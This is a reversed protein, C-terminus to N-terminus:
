SALPDTVVATSSLTVTPAPAAGAPPNLRREVAETLGTLARNMKGIEAALKPVDTNASSSSSVPASSASLSPSSSSAPALSASLSSSSSSAPAPHSGSSSSSALAPRSSSSSAPTPRSDLTNIFPVYSFGDDDDDAGSASGLPRESRHSEPAHVKSSEFRDRRRAEPLLKTPIIQELHETRGQVKEVWRALRSAKDHAEDLGVELSKMQKEFRKSSLMEREFGDLRTTMGGVAGELRTTTGGVAKEVGDMKGTAIGVDRRLEGVATSHDRLTLDARAMSQELLRLRDSPDGIGEFRELLNAFALEQTKLRAKIAKLDTSGREEVEGEASKAHYAANEESLEEETLTEEAPPTATNRGCCIVKTVVNKIVTFAGKVVDFIALAVNALAFIAIKVIDGLRNSTKTIALKRVFGLCSSIGAIREVGSNHRSVLCNPAWETDGPQEDTDEPLLAAEERLESALDRDRAAFSESTRTPPREQATRHLETSAGPIRLTM